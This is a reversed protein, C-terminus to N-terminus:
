TWPMGKGASQMPEAAADAVTFRQGIVPGLRGEAAAQLADDSAVAGLVAAMAEGEDRRRGAIVVM